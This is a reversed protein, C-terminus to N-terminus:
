KAADEDHADEAFPEQLVDESEVTRLRASILLHLAVCRCASEGHEHHAGSSQVKYEGVAVGANNGVEDGIRIEHDSNAADRFDDTPAQNRYGLRPTGTTKCSCCQQYCYKGGINLHRKVTAEM